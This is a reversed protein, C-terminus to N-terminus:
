FLMVLQPSMLRLLSWSMIFSLSAQWAATLPTAFLQVHSPLQVVIVVVYGKRLFEKYEQLVTHPM